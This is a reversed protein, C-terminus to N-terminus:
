APKARARAKRRKPPVTVLQPRRYEEIARKLAEAPRTPVGGPLVRLPTRRGENVWETGCDWCADQQRGLPAQCAYCLRPFHRDRM